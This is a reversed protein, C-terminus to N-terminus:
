ALAARIENWVFRRKLRNLQSPALLGLHQMQGVVIGPAINLSVAFRVVDKMKPRLAHLEDLYKWPILVSASFADAETEKDTEQAARGDIFTAGRDHLLLHAAEHFFSFWFHDDSLHRFSLIIMAKESSMFRTAGSARCGSPAKVFVVAVGSSACYARLRPIFSAPNRLKTLKRVSDLTTKFRRPEWPSCQIREAEIEGQRLWAALAGIKSEYTPSTRFSFANSFTTYRQIWEETSTVNFYALTADLAGKPRVPLIWGAEIMEGLPLMRLWTRAQEPTVSETARLLAADFQSQRARWFAISGGVHKSLLTAVEDDIKITGALLGHVVSKDKGIRQAFTTVDLAQRTMLTAITDGPKSFWDPRFELSPM